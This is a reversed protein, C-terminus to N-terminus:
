LWSTPRVINKKPSSKFLITSKGKREVIYNWKSAAIEIYKKATGVPLNLEQDVKQYEIVRINLKADRSGMWSQIISIIDDENLKISNNISNVNKDDSSDSGNLNTDPWECCNDFDGTKLWDSKSSTNIDCGATKLRSILDNRKEASNDLYIIHRGSINSFTRLKGIQVLITRKPNRGFALGAEFLVNPRPQPTLVENDDELTLYKTGIRALDDGTFLVLIAIAAKFANDLVDGIYPSGEGTLAIAESWELPELGISRLFTFIALRSKENRGHVVFIKKSNNKDLMKKNEIKNKVEEQKEIIEIERTFNEPEAIRNPNFPCKEPSNNTLIILEEREELSDKIIKNEIHRRGFEFLIKILNKDHELGWNNIVYDSIGVKIYFNNTKSEQEPKGIYKKDIVSYPFHYEAGPRDSSSYRPKGFKLVKLM